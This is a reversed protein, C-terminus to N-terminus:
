GDADEEADQRLARYHLWNLTCYIFTFWVIGDGILRSTEIVDLRAAAVLPRRGQRTRCFPKIVRIYPRGVLSAHVCRRHSALM